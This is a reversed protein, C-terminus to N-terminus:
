LLLYLVRAGRRPLTRDSDRDEWGLRVIMALSESVM